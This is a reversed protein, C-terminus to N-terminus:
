AKTRTAGRRGTPANISYRILSAQTDLTEAMDDGQELTFLVAQVFRTLEPVQYREAIRQLIARRVETHRGSATEGLGPDRVTAPGLGLAEVYVQFSEALEGDSIEVYERIAHDFSLRGSGVAANLGDVMEALQGTIRARQQQNRRTM